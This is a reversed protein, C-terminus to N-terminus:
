VAVPEAATETKDAEAPIQEAEASGNHRWCTGFCEAPDHPYHVFFDKHRGLEAAAGSILAIPDGGDFVVIQEGKKLAAQIAKPTVEGIQLRTQKTTM